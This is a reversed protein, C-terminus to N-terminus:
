ASEAPASPPAPESEQWQDPIEQMLANAMALCDQPTLIRGPEMAEEGALEAYNQLALAVTYAFSLGFLRVLTQAHDRQTSSFLPGTNPVIPVSDVPLVGILPMLPSLATVRWDGVQVTQPFSAPRPGGLWVGPQRNALSLIDVQRASLDDVIAATITGWDFSYKGVLARQLSVEFAAEKGPHVLYQIIRTVVLSASAPKPTTGTWGPSPTALEDRIMAATPDLARRSEETYRAEASPSPGPVGMGCHNCGQEFPREVKQLCSPCVWESLVGLPNPKGRYQRLPRDDEDMRGVPSM